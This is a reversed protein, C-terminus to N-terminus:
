RIEKSRIFNCETCYQYLKGLFVKNVEPWIFKRKKLIAQSNQSDFRLKYNFYPVFPEVLSWQLPSLKKTCFKKEKVFRPKRFGFYESATDVITGFKVMNLNSIHYTSKNSGDDDFSIHLIAEAVCDVPVFSYVTTKEAPIEEFLEMSFFHIPQYFMKFNSTYGTKSDGVIIAPRYVAVPLGKDRYEEVVKEVEFKSQEYSNNFKQGVDLDEEYFVGDKDGAVALTSVHHVRKFKGNKQCELAFELLNRTGDVNVKRIIPLPIKFECLAANHYISTVENALSQYVEKSLGLNKEGIDGKVVKLLSIVRKLKEESIQASLIKLVRMEAEEQTKGRVLAIISGIESQKSLLLEKLLYSGLFGTGGTLFIVAKM